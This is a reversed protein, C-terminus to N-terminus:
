KYTRNEKAERNYKAMQRLWILMAAVGIVFFIKNPLMNLKEMYIFTWQFFDGTANFIDTWM